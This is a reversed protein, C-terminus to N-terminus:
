LLIRKPCDMCAPHATVTGGSTITAPFRGVGDDGLVVAEAGTDMDILTIRAGDIFEGSSSDFVFGFPDVLATSRDSDNADATDVYDGVLECNEAVSLTGDNVTASPPNGASQIYGVFVGTDSGTETIRILEREGLSGVSVTVLVTEPVLPDVNQDRDTLRLFVPEGKLFFNTVVLAVPRSLDLPSGSGTPTPPPLPVFPGAPTGSTSYDSVAVQILETSIPAYRLFELESPTRSGVAVTTVTNSPSTIGSTIGRNYTAQATNNIITGPPVAKSICPLTLMSMFLLLLFGYM